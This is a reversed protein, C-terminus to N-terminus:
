SVPVAQPPRLRAIRKQMTSCFFALGVSLLIDAVLIYLLLYTLLTHWSVQNGPAFIRLNYTIALPLHFAIIYLLFTESAKLRRYSVWELANAYRWMWWYNGAPLALLWTSPILQQHASAHVNRRSRSCWYFYYLGLSAVTYLYIRPISPSNQV